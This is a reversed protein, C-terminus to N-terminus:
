WRMPDTCATLTVFADAMRQRWGNVAAAVNGTAGNVNHGSVALFAKVFAVVFTDWHDHVRCASLVLDDAPWPGTDPLPRGAAHGVTWEDVMEAAEYVPGGDVQSGGTAAAADLVAFRDNLVLAAEAATAGVVPPLPARLGGCASLAYMRWPRGRRPDGPLVIVREADSILGATRMAATLKEELALMAVYGM